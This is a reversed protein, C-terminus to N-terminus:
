LESLLEKMKAQYAEETILGKDKMDKLARLRREIDASKETAAPAASPAPAAASSAAPAPAVVPPPPASRAAPPPSAPAAQTVPPPPPASQAAPASPPAGSAAPAAQTAATAAPPQAGAVALDIALWDGRVTAVGPTVALAVKQESEKDRAGDRRPTFDESRQGYINKKKYKSQLEGFILNLKGGQYFIRGANVSVEKSMSGAGRSRSGVTSFTIDQRSGAKALGSTVHPALNAIEEGTFLARQISTGTDPDTITTRLSGLANAVVAQDLKAPQDNPPASADDQPELRVWQDDGNWLSTSSRPADTASLAQSIWSIACLSAALAVTHWHSHSQVRCSSPTNKM